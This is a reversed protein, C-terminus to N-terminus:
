GPIRIPPSARQRRSRPPFQRAAGRESARSFHARMSARRRIARFTSWIAATVRGPAHWFHNFGVDFLTAASAFSAIHGGLEDDNTNAKAVMIM